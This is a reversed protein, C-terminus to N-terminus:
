GRYLSGCANRACFRPRGGCVGAHQGTRCAGTNEASREASFGFRTSYVFKSYKQRMQGMEHLEGTCDPYANVQGDPLRQLLMGANPLLRVSALPLMPAAQVSWFPHNAPLAMVFFAKMAWYPSCPSNYIESMFMQPYCYGVTLVGCRDLVPRALWWQLNRVILGKMQALPLPEVGALVCASWFACQAFRYTLSRGYPLAAGDTDFWDAFQRGFQVARTRFRQAREVDEPGAFMSYILGLDQMAWPNYYDARGGSGDAYWGDGLAFSELTELAQEMGAADYPMAAARLALNAMVRFFLWNSRPVKHTNITNLWAAVRYKEATSLPEWYVEPAALIAWAIGSMEVFCQDYDGPAGWYEPNQPDTGAALGRRYLAELGPTRGGGHWYAGLAWLLRSYGELGIAASGYNAGSGGLELRAGDPSFCERLPDLFRLLLAEFWARTGPQAM